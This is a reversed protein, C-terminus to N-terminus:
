VFIGYNNEVKNCNITRITAVSVDSSVATDFKNTYYVTNFYDNIKSRAILSIVYTNIVSICEQASGQQSVLSRIVDNVYITDYGGPNTCIGSCLVKYVICHRM